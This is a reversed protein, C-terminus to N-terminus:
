FKVKKPTGFVDGYQKELVKWDDTFKKIGADTLQHNFMEDLVSPPVTAIDAGSKAAEIMHQTNRISAVLIKSTISYNRFITVMDRVVDMGNLKIDDLRGIFPSVYTAGAKAAILAQNPSFVLTVNTKIGDKALINVARMGDKTMPIKVVVNSGLKAIERAERLMNEYDLAIVEISVPGRVLNLIKRVQELPNADEKSLLSPNTTVGDVLNMGMFRSILEVNASDIFIKM